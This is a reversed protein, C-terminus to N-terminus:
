VCKARHTLVASLIGEASIDSAELFPVSFGQLATSTVPGISVCVAGGINGGAEFYARVGGASSFVVYDAATNSVLETEVTYVPTDTVAFRGALADPLERGALASRYLRIDAGAEAAELLASALGASTQREPCLDPIIGHSRLAAGTARGIVAFRRSGLRRLDFGETGLRRFFEEVGNVSTLVVWGAGDLGHSLRGAELPVVRSRAASFVRAGAEAFLPRLRRQMSDTGTLAVRVGSLPLEGGTLALGAVAGVVIVAPAQVNAALEAIDALTGRVDAPHPSNGGSVVAAPTDPNMGASILRRCLEGLASLGMLFVLTGGTRALADLNDPLTDGTSASHATVVHFSRSMGRHTVPIGALEPIAIASSIGPVTECSVGAARLALLEEGGRGFVFPDGGKLRVVLSHEQAKEALLASIEAQAASHRGSRKGMYIREAGAPALDLIAPDILDDYVVCGCRRLLEAARLTLLEPGGCGAGVLYVRGSM